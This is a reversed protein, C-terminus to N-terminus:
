YLCHSAFARTLFNYGKQGRGFALMADTFGSSAAAPFLSEVNPLSLRRAAARGFALMADAFGSSAAPFLSEVNPLSLRRAAAATAMLEQLGLRESISCLSNSAQPCEKLM